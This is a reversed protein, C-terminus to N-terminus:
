ALETEANLVDRGRYFGCAPCVHHLKMPRHCHPCEVVNPLKIAQHARHSGASAKSRKRKPVPM